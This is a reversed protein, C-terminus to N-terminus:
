KENKEGKEDAYNRYYQRAWRLRVNEESGKLFWYLDDALKAYDVKSETKKSKLISILHRLHYILEDFDTATIMANFRRDTSEAMDKTRLFNLSYGINQYPKSDKLLISKDAGQSHLAFLQLATLISREEASPNSKGLFDEPLEPFVFSWIDVTENLPKGITRRIKALIAKVSSSDEAANLKALIQKTVSFVSKKNEDVMIKGREQYNIM